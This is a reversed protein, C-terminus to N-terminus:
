RTENQKKLVESYKLMLNQKETEFDINKESSPNISGIRLATNACLMRRVDAYLEQNEKFEPTSFMESLTSKSYGLAVVASRLTHGGALFKIAINTIDDVSYTLTAGGTYSKEKSSKITNNKLIASLEQLFSSPEISSDIQPLLHANQRIFHLSKDITSSSVGLIQATEGITLGEFIPEIRKLAENLKELNNKM